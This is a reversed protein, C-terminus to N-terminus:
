DVEGLMIKAAQIYEVDEESPTEREDTEEYTYAGYPVGDDYGLIVDIVSAGYIRGTEKQRLKYGETSFTKLLPNPNTSYHVIKYDVM